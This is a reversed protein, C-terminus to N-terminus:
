FHFNVYHKGSHTELAHGPAAVNEDTIYTASEM